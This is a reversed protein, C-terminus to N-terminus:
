RRPKTERRELVALMHVMKDDVGTAYSEFRTVDFGGAAATERLM